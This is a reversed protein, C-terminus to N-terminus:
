VIIIEVLEIDFVLNEGALPHNGDLRVTNENVELVTLILQKGDPATAQLQAGVTLDVEDPIMSREVNQIAEDVRPGYAETTEIDITAKDGVNMGVVSVELKPIVTNEGIKFQLPDGGNSTDFMTGDTLKGSYHIRVTDGHNAQVM